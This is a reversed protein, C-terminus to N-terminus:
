PQLRRSEVWSRFLGWQSTDSWNSNAWDLATASRWGRSSGFNKGIHLLPTLRMWRYFQSSAPRGFSRTEIVPLRSLNKEKEFRGSLSQSVLSTKKLPYLPRPTFSDVWKNIGVLFSHLYVKAGGYAKIAHVSIVKGNVPRYLWRQIPTCICPRPPSVQHFPVMAFGQRLHSSM